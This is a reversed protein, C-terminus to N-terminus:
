EDYEVEPLLNESESYDFGSMKEFLGPVLHVYYYTDSLQEHGMYASLYPLMANIDKGEHMWQYLRHTAFTHRFDYLRPIHEGSQGINAQLKASRFPKELWKKSYINGKSDPFFFERGPMLNAVKSEYQYCTQTVDDAMMVIRSKFAKSELINIRGKKFDVDITRLKRAECPRLGCCYLLRFFTPIVFHRIPYNKRPKIHDLVEWLALIEEESYIHPIHRNGKKAFGSPLIYATEGRRNLYRAFERVPMLRNRFTNNGETEKRIAWTLCIEKTLEKKDSFKNLCFRDFDRLIRSSEVYPFGLINKQGVFEYIRGAFLSKFTYIMSLCRGKELHCSCPCM